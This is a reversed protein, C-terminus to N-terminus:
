GLNKMRKIFFEWGSGAEKNWDASSSENAGDSIYKV